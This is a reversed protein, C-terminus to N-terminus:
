AVNRTDPLKDVLSMQDLRRYEALHVGELAALWREGLHLVYGDAMVNDVYRGTPSDLVIMLETDEEGAPTSDHGCLGYAIDGASFCRQDCTWSGSITYAVAYCHYVQRPMSTARDFRLKVVARHTVQDIKYVKLSAGETGPLTLPLWDRPEQLMSVEEEQVTNEASRSLDNSM